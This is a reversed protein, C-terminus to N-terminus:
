RRKRQRRRRKRRLRALGFLEVDQSILATPDQAEVGITVETPTQSVELIHQKPLSEAPLWDSITLVDGPLVERPVDRGASDRVSVVNVSGAYRSQSLHEALDTAVNTALTNNAQPDELDEEFFLGTGPPNTATVKVQRQRGRHSEYNVIAGDYLELPKLDADAGISSVFWERSESWRRYELVPGAGRDDLVLWYSDDLLSLYDLLGSWSGETWDLPLVNRVPITSVGSTDYGARTGVDQAVIFSQYNDDSTRGTPRIGNVRLNTLRVRTTATPTVNNVTRVALKIADEANTIAQDVTSPGGAGLNHDAIATRTGAPGTFRSSSIDFNGADRSKVPIFAYRQLGGPSGPAWLVLGHENGAVFAEDRPIRYWLTSARAEAELDEDQPLEHPTDLADQWQQYDRSQYLLRDTQKEVERRHGEAEIFVVGAKIQPNRPLVGQWVVAGGQTFATVQAGQGQASSPLRNWDEETARGSMRDYGGNIVANFQWDALPIGIGGVIWSVATLSM